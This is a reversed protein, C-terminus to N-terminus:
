EGKCRACQGYLELHHGEVQFRTSAELNGLLTADLFCGAFDAVQGCLTCVLHHHHTNSLGCLVYIHGWNGGGGTETHVRQLVGLDVLLDLTRFVTARGVQPAAKLMSELLDSATFSDAYGAVQQMVAVRPQTLKYGAEALRTQLQGLIMEQSAKNISLIM